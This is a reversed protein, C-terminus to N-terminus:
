LAVRADILYDTALRAHRRQVLWEEYGLYLAQLSRSFRLYYAGSYRPQVTWEAWDAGPNRQLASYWARDYLAPFVSDPSRGILREMLPLKVRAPLLRNAIAFPSLMGSMALLLRGGPALYAHLNDLAREVSSVHELAFLSVILDFRRVLSPDFSVVDRVVIEDYSGAPARELEARSVDLGVYRCGQPRAEPAVLPRAGGGAELVCIGPRLARDLREALEDREYRPPLVGRRADAVARLSARLAARLSAQYEESV